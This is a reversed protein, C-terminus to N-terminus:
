DIRAVGHGPKPFRAFVEPDHGPVILAPSSAIQKMREQAQLNSQADLTQAIPLGKELNEYLYLNDSAVVVTGRRTNVGVYQSAYTHKGGTYVTVGPIIERADGDVLELRKKNLLGQLVALDEPDMATKTFEPDAYHNFEEKQIWVRAKPFLDVGDAHDWHVHTIIIDTIDEPKLGVRAIADSPKEYDKPKWHDVFKQRYFGSDVLINRGRSKLLWVMMQIDMKRSKDAGAVLAAVPFDPLVGYAIADVEYVPKPAPKRPSAQLSGEPIRPAALLVALSLAAALKRIV